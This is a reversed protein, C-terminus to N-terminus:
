QGTTAIKREGMVKMISDIPLSFAIEPTATGFTSKFICELILRRDEDSKIQKEQMLALYTKIFTVREGAELAYQSHVSFQRLTIRILISLITILLVAGTINTAVSAIDTKLLSNQATLPLPTAINDQESFVVLSSPLRKNLHEAITTLGGNAFYLGVVSLMFFLSFVVSLLWGYKSATHALNRNSWYKVSYKLDLQETYASDAAQLREMAADHTEEAAKAAHQIKRTGRKSLIHIAKIRRHLFKQTARLHSQALHSQEAAYKNFNSAIEAFKIQYEKQDNRQERLIEQFESQRRAGMFRDYNGLTLSLNMATIREYEFKQMRLTESIVANNYAIERIHESSYIISFFGVVYDFNLTVEKVFAGEESNSTIFPETDTGIHITGEISQDLATEASFTPIDLLITQIEKAAKSLHQPLEKLWHWKHREDRIFDLAEQHKFFTLHENGNIIVEM